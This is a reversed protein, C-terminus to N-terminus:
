TRPDYAYVCPHWHHAPWWKTTNQIHTIKNGLTNLKQLNVKGIIQINYMPPWNKYLKEVYSLKGVEVCV